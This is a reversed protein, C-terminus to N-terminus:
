VLEVSRDMTTVWEVAEDVLAEYRATVEIEDAQQLCHKVNAARM